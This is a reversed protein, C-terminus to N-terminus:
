YSSALSALTNCFILLMMLEGSSYTAIPEFADPTPGDDLRALSVLVNILPVMAPNVPAVGCACVELLVAMRGDLELIVVLSWKNAEVAM